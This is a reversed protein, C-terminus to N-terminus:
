VIKAQHQTFEILQPYFSLFKDEILSKKQILFANAETSFEVHKSFRNEISKLANSVSEVDAYNSLWRYKLLRIKVNDFHLSNDINTRSLQQYFAELLVDIPQSCFTQWHICLLHDFYVDLAIGSFRRLNKPFQDRLDHMAPHKDTFTDVRRHLIIGKRLPQPLHSLDSGKVFDGLFNGVLSTNSLHGLQIHALYNM